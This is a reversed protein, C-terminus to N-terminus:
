AKESHQHGDPHRYRLRGPFERNCLLLLRLPHRHLRCSGRGAPCEFGRTITIESSNSFAWTFSNEITFRTEASFATKGLFPAEVSFGISTSVSFGYSKETESGTSQIDGFEMYTWDLDQDIGDWYPPSTIVAIIRPDTFKLEHGDYSLVRSDRDIDASLSERGERREESEPDTKQAPCVGRVRRTAYLNEKETGIIVVDKKDDGDVDGVALMDVYSAPIANSGWNTNFGLKYPDDATGTGTFVYIDDWCVIEDKGDGDLDGCEVSIFWEDGSADELAIPLMTFVCQSSTNMSVDMVMRVYQNEDTKEGAFVIEPIGDGDIDGTGIDVAQAGTQGTHILFRDKVVSLSSGTWAYVYGEAVLDDDNAGNVLVIEDKGDGNFDACDVRICAIKESAGGIPTYAYQYILNFDDDYILFTTSTVSVIEDKGDGDIDGSALCQRFKMYDTNSLDLDYSTKKTYRQNKYDLERLVIKKEDTNYYM